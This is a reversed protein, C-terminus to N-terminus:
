LQATETVFTIFVSFFVLDENSVTMSEKLGTVELCRGLAMHFKTFHFAVHFARPHLVSPAQLNHPLLDLEVHKISLLILDAEVTSIFDCSTLWTLALVDHIYKTPIASLDYNKLKVDSIIWKLLKFRLKDHNPFNQRDLFELLPPVEENPYSPEVYFEQFQENHSRKTRIEYSIKQNKHQLIIGIQKCFLEKVREFLKPYKQQRLDYFSCTFNKPM